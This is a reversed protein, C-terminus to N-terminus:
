LLRHGIFLPLAYWYWGTHGGDTPNYEHKKKVDLM